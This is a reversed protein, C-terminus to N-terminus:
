VAHAIVELVVQLLKLIYTIVVARCCVCLMCTSYIYQVDQLEITFLSICHKHISYMIMNCIYLHVSLHYEKKM